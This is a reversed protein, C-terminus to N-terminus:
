YCIQSPYSLLKFCNCPRLGRGLSNDSKNNSMAESFKSVSFCPNRRMGRRMRMLIRRRRRRRMMMMMMMM